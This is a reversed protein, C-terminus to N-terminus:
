SDRVFIHSNAFGTCREPLSCLLILSTQEEDVKLDISKMKIVLDDFFSLHAKVLTGERM